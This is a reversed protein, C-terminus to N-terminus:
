VRSGDRESPGDLALGIAVREENQLHDAVESLRAHDNSVVGTVPRRTGHAGADVEWLANAFHYALPDLSETIFDLADEGDSRNDAVVEVHSQDTADCARIFIHEHFQEFLRNCRSKDNFRGSYTLENKGMGKNLLSKVSAQARNTTSSDVPMHGLCKLFLGLEVDLVVRTRKSVVPPEGVIGELCQPVSSLGTRRGNPTEGRFLTRQPELPRKCNLGFM